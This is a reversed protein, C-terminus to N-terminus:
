PKSDKKKQAFAQVGSYLPLNKTEDKKSNSSSSLQLAVLFVSMTHIICFLMTQNKVLLAYLMFKLNVNHVDAKVLTHLSITIIM